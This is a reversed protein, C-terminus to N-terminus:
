ARPTTLRPSSTSSSAPSPAIRTTVFRPVADSLVADPGYNKLQTNVAWPLLAGTTLDVAAMGPNAVGNMTTFHGGIVIENSGAPITLALVQLDASPAWTLLAGNSSAYAALRARAQGGTSNFTGGVYVTDGTVAIARVRGNVGSGFTTVLAGTTADFAAIRNRTVGNATTFDGGVYIRTGDPSATIALGQANLTPAWGTILAGTSLNYALLNSRNTENVGLASGAPRARTFSGTAYVTNGVVVQNWVVGNVQVTPLGDASVTSTTVPAIPATDASATPALSLLALGLAVVVGSSLISTRGSRRRPRDSRM